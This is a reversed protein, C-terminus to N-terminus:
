ANTEKSFTLIDRQFDTEVPFMYDVSISITPLHQLQMHSFNIKSANAIKRGVFYGRRRWDRYPDPRAASHQSHYIRRDISVGVRVFDSVLSM